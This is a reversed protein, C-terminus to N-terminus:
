LLITTCPRGVAFDAKDKMENMIHEYTNIADNYSGMRVYVGCINKLIKFRYHRDMDCVWVPMGTGMGSM